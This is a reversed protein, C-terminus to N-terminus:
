DRGMAMTKSEEERKRGLIMFLRHRSTMTARFRTKTKKALLVYSLFLLHGKRERMPLYDKGEGKRDRGEKSDFL